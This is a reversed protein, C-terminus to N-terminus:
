IILHKDCSKTFDWLRTISLKCWQIVRINWLWRPLQILYQIIEVCILVQHSRLIDEFEFASKNEPFTLLVFGCSMLVLEPRILPPWSIKPKDWYLSLIMCVGSNRNYFPRMFMKIEYHGVSSLCDKHQSPGLHMLSIPNAVLDSSKATILSCCCTYLLLHVQKSALKMLRALEKSLHTGSIFTKAGASCWCEYYVPTPWFLM